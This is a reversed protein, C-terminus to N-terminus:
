ESRVPAPGGQQVGGAVRRDEVQGEILDAVTGSPRSTWSADTGTVATTGDPHDVHLQALFATRDGWQDASRMLGVQGRYWGDSLLATVDNTGEALLDTVDYTQVPLRADYQTFGPALEEDGVRKGNLFVEYLGHATAYLRARNVPRTVTVEGRLAYVPRHGPPAIEDEAPRIWTATWDGPELLGTELVAPASWGSEGRDTRVRVSWAVRQRSGLPALPWPALVSRDGAIWGSDDNETRVRYALQRATGAPLRWSLRPARDGLGLPRDLHEVRLGTPGTVTPGAVTPGAVTPGAATQARM